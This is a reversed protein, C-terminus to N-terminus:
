LGWTEKAGDIRRGDQFVIYATSDDGHGCCAQRVGDLHGLCPDHLSEGWDKDCHDCHRIRWNDAIYVQSCDRCQAVGSRGLVEDRSVLDCPQGTVSCTM